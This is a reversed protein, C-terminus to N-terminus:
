EAEFSVTIYVNKDFEKQVSNMIKNALDYSHNKTDIVVKVNSGDIKVFNEYNFNKKIMQEIMEEKGKTVNLEKLAEYADSKEETSKSADMLIEKIQSVENELTEDRNVRLANISNSEDVEISTGNSKNVEKNVLASDPAPVSIYYIAMILIISFLTLFWLNKKTLLKMM